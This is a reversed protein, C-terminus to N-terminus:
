LKKVFCIIREVESFGIRLHFALSQTNQLLCDSAFETCGRTKAWSQCLGALHRAAGQKRCEPRVYIAELYGVPSSRTGAVYDRRLCCHAVGVAAEECLALFFVNNESAILRSNEERLEDASHNAYLLATLQTVTPLDPTTAQRYTMEGM